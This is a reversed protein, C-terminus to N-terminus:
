VLQLAFIGAQAKIELKSLFAVYFHFQRLVQPIVDSL